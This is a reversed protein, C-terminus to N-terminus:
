DFIHLPPINEHTVKHCSYFDVLSIKIHHIWMWRTITLTFMELHKWIHHFITRGCDCMIPNNVEVITHFCKIKTHSIMIICRVNEIHQNPSLLRYAFGNKFCGDHLHSTLTRNYSVHEDNLQILVKHIRLQDIGKANYIWLKPHLKIRIERKRQMHSDYILMITFCFPHFRWRLNCFREIIVEQM